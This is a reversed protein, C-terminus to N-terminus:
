DQVEDQEPNDHRQRNPPGAIGRKSPAQIFELMKKVLSHNQGIALEEVTKRFPRGSRYLARYAARVASIDRSAIGARRLGVLNVGVVDNEHVVMLFPPVDMTLRTAGGIMCLPGIRVFQHVLSYASVFVRDGVHVHGAFAAMNAITVANGVQCNHGIHSYGMIFCENGIRTTSEPATGRHISVFERIVNNDGIELFSACPKFARDQPTDGLVAGTHIENGAGIRTHCGIYVHPAIRCNPGITVQEEVIVYPGIEVSADIEAKPSVIATMHIAM